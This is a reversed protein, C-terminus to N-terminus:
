EKYNINNKECWDIALKRYEREQYQYWDDELDVVAM